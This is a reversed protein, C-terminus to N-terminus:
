DKFNRRWGSRRGLDGFDGLERVKTGQDLGKCEFFIEEFETSKRKKNM